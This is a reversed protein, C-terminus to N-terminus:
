AKVVDDTRASITRDVSGARTTATAGFYQVAYSRVREITSAWSGGKTTPGMLTISKEWEDFVQKFTRSKISGGAKVHHYLEEYLNEAFREAERLKGTKASVIKYGTADPVRIRVQWKPNKPGERKYLIVRGDGRLDIKKESAPGSSQSNGM